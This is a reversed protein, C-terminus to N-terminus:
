IEGDGNGDGKRELLTEIESAVAPRHLHYGQAADAGAAKFQVWQDPTELDTVLVRLGQVHALIIIFSALTRDQRGGQDASICGPGVKLWKIPLVHLHHFNTPGRGFGDVWLSVGLCALNELRAISQSDASQFWDVPIELGLLAPQLRRERLTKLVLGPFDPDGLSEGTVNVTIPLLAFGSNQWADLQRCVQQIVWHDLRPLLGQERAAPLIDKPYILGHRAHPWRLFAELGIRRLDALEHQIQYHLLLEDNQLASALGRALEDQRVPIDNLAADYFRFTGRGAAKAAYMAADAHEMLTEMDLGDRPALAIGLSPRVELVHGELRCPAGVALIIKSAIRAADEADALENILLVFEDGGQRSVLDSDRVSQRLRQAVHRLLLDGIHHGLQDNVVKFRDLDLFVLALLHGGRRSASLHSEALESFLMRNPLGTLHDHSALHYAQGKEQQLQQILEQKDVESQLVQRYLERQRQALLSLAVGAASLLLTLSWALSLHRRRSAALGELISDETQSIEVRLPFRELTKGVVLRAEQGSTAHANELSIALDDAVLLPGAESRSIIIQRAGLGAGQYLRLFYGLDLLMLLRGTRGKPSELSLAVPLLWAEDGDSSLPGLSLGPAPQALPHRALALALPSSAFRVSGGQDLVLLRVYVGDGALAAGLAEREANGRDLLEAARDAYLYPRALVQELNAAVVHALTQSEQRAASLALKEQRELQQLSLGWIVMLVLLTLLAPGFLLLMWRWREALRFSAFSAMQEPKVAPM